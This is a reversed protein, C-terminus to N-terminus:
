AGVKQRALGMVQHELIDKISEDIGLADVQEEGARPIVSRRLQNAVDTMVTSMALVAENVGIGRNQLDEAWMPGSGFVLWEMSVKLNQAITALSELDPSYRGSLYHSLKPQSVGAKAAFVVQTWGHQARMLDFLLRIRDLVSERNYRNRPRSYTRGRFVSSSALM